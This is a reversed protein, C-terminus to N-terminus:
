ERKLMRDVQVRIKAASAPTLKGAPKKLPQQENRSKIQPTVYPPKRPM